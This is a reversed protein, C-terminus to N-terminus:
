VFRSTKPIGEADEIISQLELIGQCNSIDSIKLDERVNLTKNQKAYELWSGEPLNNVDSQFQLIDAFFTYCRLSGLIPLQQGIAESAILALDENDKMQFVKPATNGKCVPISQLHRLVELRYIGNNM